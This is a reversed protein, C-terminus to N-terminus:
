VKGTWARVAKILDYQTAKDAIMFPRAPLKVRRKLVFLPVLTGSPKKAVLLVNGKRSRIWFARLDRYKAPREVRLIKGGRPGTGEETIVDSVRLPMQQRKRGKIVPIALWPRGCVVGGYHQLAAYKIGTSGVVAADKTIMVVRVSKMLHGTNLLTKGSEAVARKSKPSIQGRRIRRQIGRVTIAGLRRLIDHRRKLHKAAMSLVRSAGAINVTLGM